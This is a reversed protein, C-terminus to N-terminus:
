PPYNQIQKHRLIRMGFGKWTFSTKHSLVCFKKGNKCNVIFNIGFKLERSTGYLVWLLKQVIFSELNVALCCVTKHSHTLSLSVEAVVKYVSCVHVGQHIRCVRMVEHVRCMHLGEAVVQVHMGEALWCAHWVHIGEAECTHVHMHQCAHWCMCAKLLLKVYEQVCAHRLGGHKFERWTWTTTYHQRLASDAPISQCVPSM